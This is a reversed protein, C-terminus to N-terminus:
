LQTRNRYREAGWAASRAAEFGLADRMSTLNDDILQIEGRIGAFCKVTSVDEVDIDKKVTFVMRNFGDVLHSGREPHESRFGDVFTARMELGFLELFAFVVM